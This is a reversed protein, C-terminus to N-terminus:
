TEYYEIVGEYVRTVNGGLFVSRNKSVKVDLEGGRYVIPIWEDFTKIQHEILSAAIACAGSGCSLTEGSGREMVRAYTKSNISPCCIEVNREEITDKDSNIIQYYNNLDARNTDNVFVVAHENGINIYTTKENKSSHHQTLNYKGM